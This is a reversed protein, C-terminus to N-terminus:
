RAHYASAVQRCPKDDISFNWVMCVVIVIRYNKCEHDSTEGDPGCSTVLELLGESAVKVVM